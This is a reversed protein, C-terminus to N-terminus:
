APPYASNEVVAIFKVFYFDRIQFRQNHGTDHTSSNDKALTRYHSLDDDMDDLRGSM